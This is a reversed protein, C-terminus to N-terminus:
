KSGVSYALGNGPRLNYSAVLGPKLKNPRSKHTSRIFHTEFTRGDTRVYMRGDVFRKKSKLSM